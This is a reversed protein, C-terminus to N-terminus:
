GGLLSKAQELVESWGLLREFEAESSGIWYANSTEGWIHQTKKSLNKLHEFKVTYPNKKLLSIRLCMYIIYLRVWFDDQSMM